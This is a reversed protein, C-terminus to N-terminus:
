GAAGEVDPAQAAKKHQRHAIGARDGPRGVDGAVDGALKAEFADIRDHLDMRVQHRDPGRATLIEFPPRSRGASGLCPRSRTVVLNWGRYNTHITQRAM